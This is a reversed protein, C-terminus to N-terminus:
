VNLTNQDRPPSAGQKQVLRSKSVGTKPLQEFRESGKYLTRLYRNLGPVSEARKQRGKRAREPTGAVPQVRLVENKVISNVVGNKDGARYPLQENGTSRKSTM